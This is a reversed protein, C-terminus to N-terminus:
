QGRAELLAEVADYLKRDIGPPVDDVRGAWTDHWAEAAVVVRHEALLLSECREQERAEVM